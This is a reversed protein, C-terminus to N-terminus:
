NKDYFAESGAFFYGAEDQWSKMIAYRAMKPKVNRLTVM